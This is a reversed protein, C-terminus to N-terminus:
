EREAGLAGGVPEVGCRGREADVLHVEAARNGRPALPGLAGDGVRGFPQGALADGEQGVRLEFNREGAEEGGLKAHDRDFDARRVEVATV